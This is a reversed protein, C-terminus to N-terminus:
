GHQMSLTLIRMVLEDFDLGAARAAMPVLSHDTMGPVTNVELVYPAGAADVMFDVRGWGHCDLLQFTDRALQQIRETTKLNLPAPCHYRTDNALYKAQYDYFGGPV